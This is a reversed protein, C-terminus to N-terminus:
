GHLNLVLKTRVGPTGYSASCSEIFIYKLSAFICTSFLCERPDCYILLIYLFGFGTHVLVRLHLRGFSLFM